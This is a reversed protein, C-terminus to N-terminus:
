ESATIFPDSSIFESTVDCSFELESSGILVIAGDYWESTLVLEIEDSFKNSNTSILNELIECYKDYQKESKIVRYKLKEM